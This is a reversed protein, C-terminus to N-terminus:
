RRKWSYAERSYGSIRANRRQLARHDVHTHVSENFSNRKEREPDDSPRNSWRCSKCREDREFYNELVEERVNCRGRAFDFGEDCGLLCIRRKDAHSCVYLIQSVKCM